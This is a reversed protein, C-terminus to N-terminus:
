SSGSRADQKRKVTLSSDWYWQACVPLFIVDDLESRSMSGHSLCIPFSVLIATPSSVLNCAAPTPFIITSFSCLCFWTLYASGSSLALFICTPISTWSTLAPDPLPTQFQYSSLFSCGPASHLSPCSPEPVCFRSSPAMSQEYFATAFAIDSCISWRCTSFCGFHSSSVFAVPLAM